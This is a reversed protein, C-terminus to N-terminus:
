DISDGFWGKLCTLFILITIMTFNTGYKTVHYGLCFINWSAQARAELTDLLDGFKEKLFEEDNWEEDFFPDFPLLESKEALDFIRESSAKQYRNLRTIKVVKRCCITLIKLRFDNRFRNPHVENSKILYFTDRELRIPKKLYILEKRKQKKNSNQEVTTEVIRADLAKKM